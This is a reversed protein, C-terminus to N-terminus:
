SFFYYILFLLGNKNTWLMWRNVLCVAAVFKECKCWAAEIQLMFKPWSSSIDEGYCWKHETGNWLSSAWSCSGNLSDCPILIHILFFVLGSLSDLEDAFQVLWTLKHVKHIFEHLLQILITLSRLGESPGFCLWWSCCLNDCSSTERESSM